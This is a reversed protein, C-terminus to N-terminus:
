INTLTKEPARREAVEAGEAAAHAVQLTELVELEFENIARREAVEALEAAAHAVQLAELVELEIELPARREGARQLINETRFISHKNWSWNQVANKRM